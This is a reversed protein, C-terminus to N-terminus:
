HSYLGMKVNPLPDSFFTAGWIKPDASQFQTDEASVRESGEAPHPVSGM